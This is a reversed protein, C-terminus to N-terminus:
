DVIQGATINGINGLVQRLASASSVGTDTVRRSLVIVRGEELGFREVNSVTGRSDFSVALVQRNVEQPKMAGYHRYTSGVYYWGSGTLMGQASPKGILADLEAETTKGVVVESLDQETPIFGHHRDMPVCAGLLTLAVAGFVARMTKRRPLSKAARHNM